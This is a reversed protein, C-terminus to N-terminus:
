QSNESNKDSVKNKEAIKPSQKYHYYEAPISNNM